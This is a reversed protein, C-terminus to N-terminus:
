QWRVFPMMEVARCSMYGFLGVSFIDLGDSM